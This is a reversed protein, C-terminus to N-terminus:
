TRRAIAGMASSMLPLGLGHAASALGNWAGLVAWKWAQRYRLTGLSGAWLPELGARAMAM